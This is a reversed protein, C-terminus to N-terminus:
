NKQAPFPEGQQVCVAGQEPLTGDTVYGLMAGIVCPDFTTGAGHGDGELTLLRANGLDATLRQAQVYPTAQDHTIGIVLIPAAKAPNRIRGRFADRDNAPWLARVLDWHGSLFWFHPFKRESREILEFYRSPPEHGYQQDVALVATEFDDTAADGPISDFFELMMRGNGAEANALAEAVAPWLARTRLQWEFVRRVIDGNLTRLDAPDSSRIPEQDLRALLADLAAAPDSGGFGCRGQSDRCATLFRHLVHEHGAAHERWQKVPDDYYGQVDIPSDLVMARTRGPFLSAYTAGIVSGYSIGIYNLKEDGVAARLLDLDRAVNATSLHPLLERNVKRCTEGYNRAAAVFAKDAVTSTRPMPVGYAPNKGCDLLAPRSAGLGRPDFGVIDFQGFLQFAPPPATRVFEIGSIGPGGPNLFLSGIRNAPDAAPRRVLAVEITRASPRDHDLPVEVKVCQFGGGCDTWALKPGVSGSRKNDDALAPESALAATGVLIVALVNAVRM